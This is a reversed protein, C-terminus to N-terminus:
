KMWTKSSHKDAEEEDDDDEDAFTTILNMIFTNAGPYILSKALVGMKIENLCIVVHAADLEIVDDKSMLRLNEPRILQMCYLLQSDISSISNMKRYSNMYRQISLNHLIAKADEEDPALGFKNTMIFVADALEVKARKLDVDLLATGELYSIACIYKTQRMLLIMEVTPPEPLLLVANLHSNDHDDHFLEEFFDVVATSSVDGCIVIHKSFRGKPTYNARAFVSQLGMKEVLENTMRPITIIAFGILAMAAIRGLTSKPAIDGYGVTAITVLIYYMWVHFPFPQEDSELFQMVAAFFLIM